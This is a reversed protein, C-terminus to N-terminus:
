QSGKAVMFVVIILSFILMVLPFYQMIHTIMPMTDALVIFDAQTAVEQWLNAYISNIWTMFALLVVMIGYFVPHSLVLFSAVLTVIGIGILVMMFLQQTVAPLRSEYSDIMDQGGDSITDDASFQDGVDAVVKYMILGVVAIM